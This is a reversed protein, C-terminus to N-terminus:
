TTSLTFKFDVFPLNESGVILSGIGLIQNCVLNYNMTAEFVWSGNVLVRDYTVTKDKFIDEDDMYVVNHRPIFVKANNTFELFGYFPIPDV